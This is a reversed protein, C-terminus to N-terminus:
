VHVHCLFDDCVSFCHGRRIREKCKSNSITMGFIYSFTNACFNLDLSNTKFCCFVFAKYYPEDMSHSIHPLQEDGDASPLASMRMFIQHPGALALFYWRSKSITVRYRLADGAVLIDTTGNAEWGESALHMMLSLKGAQRFGPNGM